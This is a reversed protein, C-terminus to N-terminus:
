SRRRRSVGGLGAVAFIMASTPSPINTIVVGHVLGNSIGKACISSGDASIDEVRTFHWGTLDLGYLAAYQNVTVMGSAQTWLFGTEGNPGGGSAGGIFTGDDSVTTAFSFTSGPLYGLGQLTWGSGSQAWRVAEPVNGFRPQQSSGVITQGGSSMDWAESNPYSAGFKPLVAAGAVEDWFFAENSGGSTSRLYGAVKSGDFSVAKSLGTRSALGSLVQMGTAEQWRAPLSSSTGPKYYGVVTGGNGSVRYPNLAGATGDIVLLRGDATRVFGRTDSQPVNTWGTAVSGDSSLGTVISSLGISFSGVGERTVYNPGSWVTGTQVIGNFSSGGVIAGNGSLARPDAGIGSNAAVLTSIGGTALACPAVVLALSAGIGWLTKM